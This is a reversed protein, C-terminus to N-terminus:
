VTIEYDPSAHDTYHGSKLNLLVSIAKCNEASCCFWSQTGVEIRVLSVVGM